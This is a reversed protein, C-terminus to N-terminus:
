VMLTLRALYQGSEDEFLIETNWSLDCAINTLTQADIYLWSFWQSKKQKYEYCCRIEGYYHKLHTHGGDDEYLYAVDSSDFLLQGEKRLLKKAQRLFQKLGEITAVLGIGNMLLLLTDFSGKQLSFIDRCQVKRVGRHKMVDVALPSIDLAEVSRGMEQLCLSHSGAGAGIDLIRGKCLHLALSELYPISDADRFYIEVPMEEKPGVLDHVWLKAKSKHFYYDAIANGIIDM